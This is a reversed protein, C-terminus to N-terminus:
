LAVLEASVSILGDRCPVRAFTGAVLRDDAPSWQLRDKVLHPVARPGLPAPKEALLLRRAADPACPLRVSLRRVIEDLQNGKYCHLASMFADTLPKVLEPLPGASPPAAVRMM